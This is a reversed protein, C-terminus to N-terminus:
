VWRQLSVNWGYTSGSGDASYALAPLNVNAPVLSETNPDSIYVVPQNGGGGGGGGGGVIINLLSLELLDAVSCNAAAAYGAVQRNSLLTQFDTAAMPNTAYAIKKLLALRLLGAM